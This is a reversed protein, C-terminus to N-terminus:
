EENYEAPVLKKIKKPVPPNEMADAKIRDIINRTNVDIIITDETGQTNGNGKVQIGVNDCYGRNKGKKQLYWEAVREDGNQIAKFVVSEAMDLVVESEEDLLKQAFPNSKVYNNVCVWTCGLRKAIVAKIGQSDQVAIKFKKETIKKPRGNKKKEIIKNEM